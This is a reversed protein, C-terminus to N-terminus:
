ARRSSQNYEIITLIKGSRRRRHYELLGSLAPFKYLVTFFAFILADKPAWGRKRGYSYIRAGLYPYALLLLLSFGKTFPILCLSVLPIVLAWLWIRQCDRVYYREATTKGHLAAGQGYAHGARKARQWWQGFRTMAADHVGMPADVQLIKWGALRVRLSFEDDEGAIIEPRFGGVARFIKARMMFRGGAARIEGPIQSWELACLMNYISAEPYREAVHGCVIGADPRQALAEVGKQLWGDMVECDGDLFQVLSVGPEIEMLHAFGENRGRAATFPRAPDLEVVSCGVSAAYQPSGDRSGSDVYVVTAGKGCVSRLTQHLREGENRGIVVIALSQNLDSM